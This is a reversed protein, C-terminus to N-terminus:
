VATDPEPIRLLQHRLLQVYAIRSPSPFVLRRHVPELQSPQLELPSNWVVRAPLPGPANCGGSQVELGTSAPTISQAGDTDDADTDGSRVAELTALGMVTALPLWLLLLLSSLLPDETRERM